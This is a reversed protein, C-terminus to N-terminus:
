KGFYEFLFLPFSNLVAVSESLNIYKGKQETFILIQRIERVNKPMACVGNVIYNAKCVNMRKLTEWNDRVKMYMGKPPIIGDKFMIFDFSRYSSFSDVLRKFDRCEERSIVYRWYDEDPLEKVYRISEVMPYNIYLRGNGTEDDFMGLMAEVRANAEGITLQTNQFDYDFFLYTQSIDSSRVGRLTADGRKELREKLMAVIDGGGGLESMQAYLEYINNGFSCVINDNDRPFYLRELTRYLGVERREGEFVFLIM